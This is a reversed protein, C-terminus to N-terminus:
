NYLDEMFTAQLRELAVGWDPSGYAYEKDAEQQLGMYKKIIWQTYAGVKKVERTDEDATNEGEIKTTPDALMLTKLVELEIKPKQGKKKAKAFKNVLVEYRSNELIVKGLIDTFSLNM